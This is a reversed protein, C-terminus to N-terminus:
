KLITLLSYQIQHHLIFRDIAGIWNNICVSLGAMHIVSFSNVFFILLFFDRTGLLFLSVECVKDTLFLLEGINTMESCSIVDTSAVFQFNNVLILLFFNNEEATLYFSLFNLIEVTQFLEEIAGFQGCVVVM